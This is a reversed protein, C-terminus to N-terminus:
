PHPPVEPPVVVPAVATTHAVNASSSDSFLPGLAGLLATGVSKEADVEQPTLGKTEAGTTYGNLINIVVLKSLAPLSNQQASLDKVRDAAEKRLAALQDGLEKTPTKTFADLLVKSQTGLMALVPDAEIAEALGHLQFAMQMPGGATSAVQRQATTKVNAQKASGMYSGAVGAETDPNSLKSEADGSRAAQGGGSAMPLGTPSACSTLSFALLMLGTGGITKVAATIVYGRKTLIDKAQLVTPDEVIEGAPLAAPIRLVDILKNLKHGLGLAGFAKDFDFAEQPIEVGHKKCYTMVAWAIIAIYTKKGDLWDLLAKM